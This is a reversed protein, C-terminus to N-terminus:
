GVRAQPRAGISPHGNKPCRQTASCWFMPSYHPTTPIESRHNRRKRVFTVPQGTARMAANVYRRISSPAVGIDRLEMVALEPGVRLAADKGLQQVASHSHARLTV